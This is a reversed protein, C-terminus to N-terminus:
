YRFDLRNGEDPKKGESLFGTALATIPITFIIGISGALARVVESAIVDRNIIDLFPIDYAMYLLLMQLSGGAYALILTNTMTSMVDRGINMGAKILAGRKIKPNAERVEHMASAISMGMDMSAGLTGIIIGAFLLGKYNFDINQPIYLLMQSEDDGLGTLKAVNGVLYALFGATLVGGAAGIIAAYTKKNFGSVIILTIVTIGMCITVSVLIPDFGNLILPLLVKVVALCTLGLTIVAKLGKFRGVALLLVVFGLVLYLLYKDRVVEYVVLSAISGDEANEVYVWVEDGVKLVPAIIKSSFGMNLSYDTQLVEGKHSGELLRVEIVQSENALEGGSYETIESSDGLLRVVQARVSEYNEELDDGFVAHSGFFLFFVVQFLVFVAFVTYPKKRFLTWPTNNM